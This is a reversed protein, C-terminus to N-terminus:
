HMQKRNQQEFGGLIIIYKCSIEIQPKKMAKQLLFMPFTLINSLGARFFEPFCNKKLNTFKQWPLMRKLMM